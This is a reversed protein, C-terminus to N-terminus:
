NEPIDMISHHNELSRICKEPGQWFFWQQNRIKHPGHGYKETECGQPDRLQKMRRRHPTTDRIQLYYPAIYQLHLGAHLVTSNSHCIKALSFHLSVQLITDEPNNRRTARTLVSTESSGPAEKM